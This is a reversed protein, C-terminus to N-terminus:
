LFPCMMSYPFFLFYLFVFSKVGSKRGRSSDLLLFLARVLQHFSIPRSTSSYSEFDVAVFLLVLRARNGSPPFFSLHLGTVGLSREGFGKCTNESGSFATCWSSPSTANMALAVLLQLLVGTCCWSKKNTRSKPSTPEGFECLDFFSDRM